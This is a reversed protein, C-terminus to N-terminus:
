TLRSSNARVFHFNSRSAADFIYSDSIGSARRGQFAASNGFNASHSAAFSFGSAKILSAARRGAYKLGTTVFFDSSSCRGRWLARMGVSPLHRSSPTVSLARAM